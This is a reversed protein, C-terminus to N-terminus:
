HNSVNWFLSIVRSRQAEGHRRERSQYRKTNTLRPAEGRQDDPRRVMTGREGAGSLQLFRGPFFFFYKETNSELLANRFFLKMWFSRPKDYEIRAMSPRSPSVHLSDVIGILLDFLRFNEGVGRTTYIHTHDNTLM